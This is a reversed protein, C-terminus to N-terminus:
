ANTFQYKLIPIGDGIAFSQSFFYPSGGPMPCINVLAAPCVNTTLNTTYFIHEEESIDGSEEYLKYKGSHYGHGDIDETLIYPISYHLSHGWVSLSGSSSCGSLYLVANCMCGIVTPLFVKIDSRYRESGIDQHESGEGNNGVVAVTYVAGSYSVDPAKIGWSQTAWKSICDTRSTECNRPASIYDLGDSVRRAENIKEINGLIWRLTGFGKQLEEFVWGGIADGEQMQGYATGGALPSRRFGNINLGAAARWTELTFYLFATGAPNLPGNVHDIFSTCNTELWGQLTRWYASSQVDRVAEPTYASQGIAQRRESYALTIESLLTQWSQGAPTTFPTSM